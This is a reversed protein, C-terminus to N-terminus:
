SAAGFVLNFIRGLDNFNGIFLLAFVCAFGIRFGWEQAKPGLPKRRVAEIAFFVLHGGDLMPIPFLNILGIAISLLAIREIFDIPGQSAADGAMKTMTGAGGIQKYSREGTFIKGMERLTNSCIFWIHSISETFAEVPGFDRHLPEDADRKHEIGLRGVLVKGGFNDSEEFMAPAANLSLEQGSRDVVIDLNEGPHLKVFRVIGEFSYIDSGNISVFRDGPKIGIKDAVSNAVVGDAIPKNYDIGIWAFFGTLIVIALLFNAIPGAVVIAMRKYVSQGQLSTPSSPANQDPVSAANADGEFKVYGGLPIACLKWRTGHRDNFGILEKGFGVSFADIKVGCWRGVIFHGYEHIFVIFSMAVIFAAIYFAVTLFPIAAVAEFVGM